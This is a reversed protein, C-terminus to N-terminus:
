QFCCPFTDAQLSQLCNNPSLHSMASLFFFFDFSCFLWWLSCLCLSVSLFSHLSSFLVSVGSHSLSIFLPSSNNTSAPFNLLAPHFVTVSSIPAPPFLWPIYLPLYLQSLTPSFFFILVVNVIMRWGLVLFQLNACPIPKFWNLHQMLFVPFLFTSSVAHGQEACSSFHSWCHKSSHERCHHLLALHQPGRAKGPPRAILQTLWSCSVGLSTYPNYHVSFLEVNKKFVQRLEAQENTIMMNERKCTERMEVPLVGTVLYYNLVVAWARTWKLFVNLEKRFKYVM